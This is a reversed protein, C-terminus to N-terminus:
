NIEIIHLTFFLIILQIFILSSVFPFTRGLSNQWFRPYKLLRKLEAVKSKACVLTATPTHVVVVEELGFVALHHSDSSVFISGSSDLARVNGLKVNGNNDAPFHNALSTWSGVDDWDFNCEAVIINKAKEMVAFDVSIKRLAPYEQKMLARVNKSTAVKGIMAGIDPASRMFEAEMTAVKWIFMGSNWRFRPSKVYKKATKLDPKEVFRKVRNFPTPTGVDLKEACEIYGYGTAPHTPVIGLTVIADFRRAAKVADKLIQRVKSEPTMLQDATLVCAVADAGGLQKVLGCAVAMAAATDRRCPEGLINAKPLMPLAKKTLAVLSEATIVLTREPPIFGKLRDVAHRLLPKGGFVEVFQKPREPTSMPWLREGSGGALIVAYVNDTAKM